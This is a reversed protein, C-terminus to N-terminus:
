PKVAHGLYTVLPAGKADLVFDVRSGVEEDTIHGRRRSLVASVLAQPSTPKFSCVDRNELGHATMVTTLEGPPRLRSAAYRGAPMIRTFAIRQFAGLYILRALATRNVTDYLLVGGGPRLVRAAESVVRDLHETVEFTDACYVLDFSADPFELDEADMTDHKVEVDGLRTRERAVETAVPSPDVATVSLGLGALGRALDGKGSGVVLATGPSVPLTRLCREVYELRVRQFAAARLHRGDIAQVDRSDLEIRPTQAVM